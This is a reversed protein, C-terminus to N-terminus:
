FVVGSKLMREIEDIETKTATSIGTMYVSECQAFGSLTSLLRVDHDPKGWKAAYQSMNTDPEIITSINYLKKTEAPTWEPAGSINGVQKYSAADADKLNEYKAGASLMTSVGSLAGSQVTNWVSDTLGQLAITTASAAFTEVSRDVPFATLTKIPIRKSLEFYWNGTGDNKDTPTVIYQMGYLDVGIAYYINSSTNMGMKAPTFSMNTVYPIKTLYTGALNWYNAIISQPGNVLAYGLNAQDSKQDIIYVYEGSGTLPVTIGNPYGASRFVIDSSRQVASEIRRESLYYVQTVDIIQRGVDVRQLEDLVYSTNLYRDIFRIFAAETMLAIRVTTRDSTLNADYENLYYYRLAIMPEVKYTDSDSSDYDAIFTPYPSASVVETRTTQDKYNIRTDLELDTGQNSYGVMAALGAIYSAYSKLVDVHCDIQYAIGGIWTTKEIWYYRNYAACYCYNYTPATTGTHSIVFSPNLLDNYNDVQEGTYTTGTPLTKSVKLIESSYNYCILSLGM